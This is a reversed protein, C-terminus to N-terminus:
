PAPAASAAARAEAAILAGAGDIVARPSMSTSYDAPAPAGWPVFGRLLRYGRPFTASLRAPVGGAARYVLREAARRISGRRTFLRPHKRQVVILAADKAADSTQKGVSTPHRRYYFLFEPVLVGTHGNEVVSLWYDWDSFWRLSEDFGPSTEYVSRRVLATCSIYNGDTLREINFPRSWLLREEAGFMVARTYAFSADPHRELATVTREIYRPHLMDDADLRVYLEGTAARIGSNAAGSEGLQPQEIVRAGLSRAVRTSDDVSGDNVVIVECPPYTQQQASGVSAHLFRAYNHCLIVVSVTPRWVRGDPSTSM